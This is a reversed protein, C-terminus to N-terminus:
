IELQSMTNFQNKKAMTKIIEEKELYVFFDQLEETHARSSRARALSIHCVSTFAMKKEKKVTHQYQDVYPHFCPFVIPNTVLNPRLWTNLSQM